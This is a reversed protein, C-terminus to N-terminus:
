NWVVRDARVRNGERLLRVDGSATVVDADNDYELADAAFDIQEAATLAPTPETVEQARASGAFALLLGTTVCIQGVIRAM